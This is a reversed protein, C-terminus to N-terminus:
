AKASSLVASLASKFASSTHTAHSVSAVSASQASLAEPILTNCASHYCNTEGGNESAAIATIKGGAITVTMSLTGHGGAVTASAKYSGDKLGPAQGATTTTKPPTPSGGANPTGTATASQGPKASHSGSPTGAAPASGPTAGDQPSPGTVVVGDAETAPAGAPPTGYKAGVLLATGTMTGLVIAAARRM